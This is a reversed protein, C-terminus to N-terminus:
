QGFYVDCESHPLCPKGIRQGSASRTDALGGYSMDTSAQATANADNTMTQRAQEQSVPREQARATGPAVAAAVTVIAAFFALRIRM